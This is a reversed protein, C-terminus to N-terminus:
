WILEGRGFLGFSPTSFGRSVHVHSSFANPGLRGHDVAEFNGPSHRSGISLGQDRTSLADLM